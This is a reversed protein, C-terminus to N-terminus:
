RGGLRGREQRRGYLSRRRRESLENKEAGETWRTENIGTPWGHEPFGSVLIVAHLYSRWLDRSTRRKRTLPSSRHASLDFVRGIFFLNVVDKKKKLLWHVPKLYRKFFHTNKPKKTKKKIKLGPFVIYLLFSFCKQKTLSESPLFLLPIYEQELQKLTSVSM